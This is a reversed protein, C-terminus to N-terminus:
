VSSEKYVSILADLLSLSLPGILIGVPGLLSVGGLVSFLILMPHIKTKSGIIIPNLLNDITGVLTLCWVGLGIAHGTMGMAFLYLITPIAILATGITPVM